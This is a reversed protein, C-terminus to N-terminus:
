RAMEEIHSQEYLRGMILDVYRSVVQVMDTVTEKGSSLPSTATDYFIAHGGMQVMGTEFSVRTRLRPKDFIMMSTRRRMATAYDGPAKKVKHALALVEGILETSWDELSILHLM